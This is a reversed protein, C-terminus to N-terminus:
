PPDLRFDQRLVLAFDDPTQSVLTADDGHRSVADVIGRGEGGGVDADGHSRPRIHCDLTRAYRQELTIKLADHPCRCSLWAVILFM